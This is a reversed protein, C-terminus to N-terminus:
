RRQVALGAGAAVALVVDEHDAFVAGLVDGLERKPGSCLMM